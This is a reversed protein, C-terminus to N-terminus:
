INDILILYTIQIRKIAADGIFVNVVHQGARIQGVNSIHREDVFIRSLYAIQEFRREDAIGADAIPRTFHIAEIQVVHKQRTAEFLRGTTWAVEDVAVVIVVAIAVCKVATEVGVAVPDLYLSHALGADVLAEAHIQEDAVVLKLVIEERDPASADNHVILRYTRNQSALADVYRGAIM